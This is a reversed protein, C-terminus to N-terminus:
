KTRENEIHKIFENIYHREVDGKQWEELEDLSEDDNQKDLIRYMFKMAEIAIQKDRETLIEM